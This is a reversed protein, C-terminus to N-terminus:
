LKSAAARDLLLVVNPHTQLISAPCAPTVEGKVTRYIAEAKSEGAAILVIKKAEMISRIGMTLAYAPMPSETFYVSNSLVTSQSLKIRHTGESFLADPENFGIHGNTGIGLLQVDIGGARKIKEDYNRCEANIDKANGDPIHTNEPAIDVHQFLNERMFSYYSNKDNQPLDCYEDLNFSQIDRFSIKGEKVRRILEKYTQVPSAGTALGLVANPKDRIVEEFLDACKRAIEEKTDFIRIEM